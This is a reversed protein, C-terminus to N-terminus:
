QKSEEVHQVAARIWGNDFERQQEQAVCLSELNALRQDMQELREAIKRFAASVKLNISKMVLGLATAFVVTSVFYAEASM